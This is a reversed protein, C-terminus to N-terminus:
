KGRSSPPLLGRSWDLIMVTYCCVLLSKAHTHGGPLDKPAKENPTLQAIAGM